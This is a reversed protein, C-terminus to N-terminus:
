IFNFWIFSRSRVVAALEGALSLRIFDSRMEPVVHYNARLLEGRQLAAERLAEELSLVM